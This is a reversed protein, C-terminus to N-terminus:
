QPRRAEIKQLLAIIEDEYGKYSAGVCRGFEKLQGLVWDSPPNKYFGVRPTERSKTKHPVVMFLPEVVILDNELWLVMETSSFVQDAGDTEVVDAECENGRGGCMYQYLGLGFGQMHRKQSVFVTFFDSVPPWRAILCEPFALRRDNALQLFWTMGNVTAGLRSDLLLGKEAMVSLECPLILDAQAPRVKDPQCFLRNYRDPKYSVRNSNDPQSTVQTIQNLEFGMGMSGEPGECPGCNSVGSAEGVEYTSSGVVKPMLLDVVLV